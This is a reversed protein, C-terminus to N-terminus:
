WSIDVTGGHGSKLTDSFYGYHILDNFAGINSYTGPVTIGTAYFLLESGLIITLGNCDCYVSAIVDQDSEDTPDGSCDVDPDSWEKLHVAGVLSDSNYLNADVGDPCPCPPDGCSTTGVFSCVYTTNVDVGTASYKFSGLGYSQCAGDIVVESFVLTFPGDPCVFTPPTSPTTPQRPSVNVAFGSKLSGAAQVNGTGVLSFKKHRLELQALQELFNSDM